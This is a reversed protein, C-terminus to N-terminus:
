ARDERRGHACQPERGQNGHQGENGDRVVHVLGDRRHHCRGFAHVGGFLHFDIQEHVIAQTIAHTASLELPLEATPQQLDARVDVGDFLIPQHVLDGRAHVAVQTLTV